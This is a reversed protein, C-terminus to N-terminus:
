EKLSGFLGALLEDYVHAKTEIPGGDKGSVEVSQKSSWRRPYRRELIWRLDAADGIALVSQELADERAAQAAEFDLWFEAVESLEGRRPNLPDFPADEDEHTEVERRGEDLWRALTSPAIRAQAACLDPHLGRKAADIIKAKAQHFRKTPTM